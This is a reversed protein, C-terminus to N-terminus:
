MLFSRLCMDLASFHFFLLQWGLGPCVSKIICCTVIVFLHKYMYWMSVLLYHRSLYEGCM